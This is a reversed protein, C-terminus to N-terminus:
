FKRDSYSLQSVKQSVIDVTSFKEVFEYEFRESNIKINIIISKNNPRLAIEEIEPIETVIDYSDNLLMQLDKLANIM